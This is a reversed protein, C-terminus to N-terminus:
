APVAALRARQVADPAPVHAAVWDRLPALTPHALDRMLHDWVRPLHALYGPKGDRRALRAFIGLIKLNRQASLYHAAYAFAAPEAGSRELYRATMAARLDPAVDRRADELLSVLDYAPHGRRMDQYDLLGVRALGARGPLWVLNEAHYDRLVAVPPAALVPAALAGVLATLEAEREARGEEPLYWDTLIRAEFELFAQDYPPPEWGDIVDPAPEAHLRALLDTAAAYLEPEAAPTRACVRVFLDDGLDELLVLGDDPDAALIEPASLGLGRLWGTMALFPRPDIGRDPPADMLVATGTGRTLREYRRPSADGALPARSAAGWGAAALFEAIAAERSM